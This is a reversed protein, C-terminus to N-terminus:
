WDTDVTKNAVANATEKIVKDVFGSRGKYANNGNLSVITTLDELVFFDIRDSKGSRYNFTVTLAPDGAPQALNIDQVSTLCLLQMYARAVELAVDKGDVKATIAASDKPDEGLQYAVKHEESGFKVGISEVDLINALVVASSIIDRPQVTMWKINGAPVVFVQDSDERMLYYCDVTSATTSDAEAPGTTKNGTKIKITSTENFRIEFESTPQDFGYEKLQEGTPKAAVIDSADMGFNGWLYTELPSEAMLSNVPSTMKLNGQSVDNESIDEATREEMVIPQALDPRSIKVYNIVTQVTGQDDYQIDDIVNKDVYSYRTLFCNKLGTSALGYVDNEGTKIIYQYGGDPSLSGVTLHYENGNTYKLDLTLRPKDFGFRSLDACDEEIVEAVSVRAVQSLTELYLYDLPTYDTLEPVRWTDEGVLEITYEDLENTIHASELDYTDEQVLDILTAEFSSMDTGDEKPKQTLVLVVVLAALVAIAVSGWIIAKVKKSM